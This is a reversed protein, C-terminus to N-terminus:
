TARLAAVANRPQHWKAADLILKSTANACMWGRRVAEVRDRAVAGGPRGAAVSRALGLFSYDVILSFATTVAAPLSASMAHRMLAKSKGQHSRVHPPLALAFEVVRRDM